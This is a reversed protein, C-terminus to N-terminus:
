LWENAQRIINKRKKPYKTSEKSFHINPLSINLLYICLLIDLIINNVLIKIYKDNKGIEVADIKVITHIYLTWSEKKYKKSRRQFIIVTIFSWTSCTFNQITILKISIVPIQMYNKCVKVYKIAIMNKCNYQRKWQLIISYM